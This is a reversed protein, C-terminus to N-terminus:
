VITESSIENLVIPCQFTCVHISFMKNIFEFAVRM